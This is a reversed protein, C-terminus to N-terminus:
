ELSLSYGNWERCLLSVVLPISKAMGVGLMLTGTYFGVIKFDLLTPRLLM